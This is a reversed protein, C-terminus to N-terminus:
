LAAYIVPLFAPLQYQDTRSSFSVEGPSEIIIIIMITMIIM